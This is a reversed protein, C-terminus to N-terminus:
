FIPAYSLPEGALPCISRRQMVHSGINHSVENVLILIHSNRTMLFSTPFGLPRLLWLLRLCVVNQGYYRRPSDASVFRFQILITSVKM